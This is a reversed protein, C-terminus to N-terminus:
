HDLLLLTEIHSSMNCTDEIATIGISNMHGSCLEYISLGVHEHENDTERMEILPEGSNRFGHLGYIGNPTNITFQKTFSRPEGHEMMWVSVVLKEDESKLEVITDKGSLNPHFTVKVLKPDCTDLCVGFGIVTRYYLKSFNPLAITVSNRITPNWIVATKTGSDDPAAFVDYLCLLGQSSFIIPQNLQKVSEPVTPSFKQQPFTDDGAITVYKRDSKNEQDIYSVLLHHQPQTRHYNAIFKSSDILSKWQKSVSRFQILSKAPLRKIIEVQLDFPINDSM